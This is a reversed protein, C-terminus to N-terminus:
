VALVRPWCRRAVSGAVSLRYAISVRGVVAKALWEQRKRIPLSGGLRPLINWANFVVTLDLDPFDANTRCCACSEEPGAIRSRM